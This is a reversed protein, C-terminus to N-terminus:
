GEQNCKAESVVKQLHEWALNPIVEDLIQLSSSVVRHADNISTMGGQLTQNLEAVKAGILETTKNEIFERDHRLRTTFLHMLKARLATAVAELVVSQWLASDAEPYDSKWVEVIGVILLSSQHISNNIFNKRMTMLNRNAIEHIEEASIAPNRPPRTPWTENQKALYDDMRHLALCGAKYHIRKLISARCRPLVEHSKEGSMYTQSANILYEKLLDLEHSSIGTHLRQHASEIDQRIKAYIKQEKIKKLEEDEVKLTRQWGFNTESEKDRRQKEITKELAILSSEFQKNLPAREDTAPTPIKPETHHFLGILRDIFDFPGQGKSAQSGM